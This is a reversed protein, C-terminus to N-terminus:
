PAVGHREGEVHEAIGKAVVGQEHGHGTAEVHASDDYLLAVAPSDISM